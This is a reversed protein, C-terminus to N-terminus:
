HDKARQKRSGIRLHCYKEVTRKKAAFTSLISRILITEPIKKALGWAPHTNGPM